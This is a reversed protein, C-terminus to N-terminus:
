NLALSIESIARDIIGLNEEVMAITQPNLSDKRAELARRLQARTQQLSPPVLSWSNNAALVMSDVTEVEAIQPAQQHLGMFYATTIAAIVVAAAAAIKLFRRTQSPFNVIKEQSISEEIRPWLDPKPSIERPLASAERLMNELAELRSGCASCGAIHTTIAATKAHGLERDVFEDLVELVESCKM